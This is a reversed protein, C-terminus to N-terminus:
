WSDVPCTVPRGGPLLIRHKSIQRLVVVAKAADGVGGDGAVLRGHGVAHRRRSIHTDGGATYSPSQQWGVRCLFSNHFASQDNLM